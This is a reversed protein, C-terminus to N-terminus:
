LKSGVSLTQRINLPLYILTMHTDTISEVRYTNDVVDGVGVTHV